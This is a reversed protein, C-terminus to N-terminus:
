KTEKKVAERKQKKKGVSSILLGLKDKDFLMFDGDQDDVEDAPVCWHWKSTQPNQFACMCLGCTKCSALLRHQHTINKPEGCNLCKRCWDLGPYTEETM